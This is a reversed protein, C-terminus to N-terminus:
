LVTKAKGGCNQVIGTKAFQVPYPDRAEAPSRGTVSHPTARYMLLFNALRHQLSITPQGNEELVQKVLARKLIQVSREAAGNSAPHYAPVLTQKIGNKTLFQRFETSALQPVNDSM